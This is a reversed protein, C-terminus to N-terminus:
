TVQDSGKFAFFAESLAWFIAFQHRRCGGVCRYGMYSGTAKPLKMAYKKCPHVVTLKVRISVLNVIEDPLKLSVHPPISRKKLFRQDAQYTWHIKTNRWYFRILYQIYYIKLRGTVKFRKQLWLYYNLPLEINRFIYKKHRKKIIYEGNQEYPAM